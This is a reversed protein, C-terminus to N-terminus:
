GASFPIIKQDVLATIQGEMLKQAWGINYSVIAQQCPWLKLLLGYRICFWFRLSTSTEAHIKFGNSLAEEEVM